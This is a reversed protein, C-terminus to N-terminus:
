LAGRCNRYQFWDWISGATFKGTAYTEGQPQTLLHGQRQQKTRLYRKNQETPAIELPVRKVRVGGEELAQIKAPNNTLLRISSLGLLKIIDVAQDYTRADAPYGLAENADITDCGQEQLVYTQLKAALGIGRGEQPLYLVLGRGEQAVAHLSAHLQAQCDCRRSGFLDGTACASHLRVLPPRTDNASLDGLMLALYDQGAALDRYHRLRFTAEETPLSTESLCVIRQEKRFRAIEEVTVIGLDWQEALTHLTEGRAAQGDESLVECIVAVPELGALCMLDVAAETHGRRELTGGPRARLPFVHGPSALDQPRTGPDVLTRITTARDQASIGTTTGHLADVSAAFGTSQLPAGIREAQPIHLADLREGAMAVCLLGCAQHVLFNVAKASVFQAALCLDAENERGEDDCILVMRGARVERIAEKVSLHQAIRTIENRM